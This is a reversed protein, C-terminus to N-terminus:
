CGRGARACRPWLLPPPHEPVEDQLLHDERRRRSTSARACPPPRRRSSWSADVGAARRRRVPVDACRGRLGASPNIDEEPQDPLAGNMLLTSYRGTRVDSPERTSRTTTSSAAALAQAAEELTGLGCASCWGTSRRPSPTTSRPPASCAATPWRPWARSRRAAVPSGEPDGAVVEGAAQGDAILGLPATSPATPPRACATGRGPPAQRRVDARAARRETAFRSTPGPSPPCAPTSAARGRRRHADSLERGLREFGEEALADLLAQKDPSTGARRRTASASRARSSACRSSAPGRRSRRRPASSCRPACTATTTPARAATM